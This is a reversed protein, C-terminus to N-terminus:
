NELQHGRLTKFGLSALEADPLPMFADFGATMSKIAIKYSIGSEAEVVLKELEHRQAADDAIGAVYRILSDSPHGPNTLVRKRRLLGSVHIHSNPILQLLQIDVFPLACPVVRNDGGLTKRVADSFANM